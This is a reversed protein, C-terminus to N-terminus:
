AGGRTDGAPLPRSMGRRLRGDDPKVKAQYYKIVKGDKGVLYKSFNWNPLEGTQKKLDAYIPSQGEGAKTVVKEFLPFSVTYKTSCFKRIEEPTGPEQKGFDNSPFGLVIFGKDKLDNYLKELGTYQPTNGCYSAVNVVLAVKGKYEKLDAKKGELTKTSLRYFSEASVNKEKKAEKKEGGPKADDARIVWGSLAVLSFLGLVIPFSRRACSCM